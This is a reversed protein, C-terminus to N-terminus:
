PCTFSAPSAEAAVTKGCGPPGCFLVKETPRMGFSGLIDEKRKELVIRDLKQRVLPALVLDDIARKPEVFEILITNREKDRPLNSHGNTLLTLIEKRSSPSGNAEALIRDLDNALVHHNLSKEREVYEQAASRFSADDGKFHAILLRRIAEAATSM